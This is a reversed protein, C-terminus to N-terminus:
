VGAKVIDVWALMRGNSHLVWSDAVENAAEESDFYETYKKRGYIDKVTLRYRM